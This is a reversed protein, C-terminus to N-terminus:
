AARPLFHVKPVQMGGVLLAEIEAAPLPKHMLFGQGTDCGLEQLYTYQEQTEIGECTVSLKLTRALGILARVIAEDAKSVGIRNIFSRDIKLTNLPLQTLYSMSSYGTGFDDVALQVGLGRL